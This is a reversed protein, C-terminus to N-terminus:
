SLSQVAFCARQIIIAHNQMYNIDGTRAQKTTIYIENRPINSDKIARGVSAENKYMQATDIARYGIELAYKVTNYAVEGSEVLFTGLGFQPMKYGNNLTIFKM